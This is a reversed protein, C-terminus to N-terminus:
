ELLRRASRVVAEDVMHGHEDLIVGSGAAVAADFTEVLRRAADLEEASPAFVENIVDVQSPHIASRARYGLRKLELCSSRFADLDRFNTSVPGTPGAIRAAACVLVLPTRVGIRASGDLSPDMGLDAFLDAEGLAMTQVREHLAM